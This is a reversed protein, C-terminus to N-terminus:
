VKTGEAQEIKLKELHKQKIKELRKEMKLVAKSLYKSANILLHKEPFPIHYNVHLVMEKCLSIKSKLEIIHEYETM